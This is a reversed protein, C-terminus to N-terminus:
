ADRMEPPLDDPIIESTRTLYVARQVTNELHRVNGPWPYRLFLDTVATSFPVAPRGIDASFRARFQEALPLIDERREVLPPVVLEVVDLREYHARSLRGEAIEVALDRSTAFVFRVDFSIPTRDGIPTMARADIADLLKVLDSEPIDGFEDIFLTGHHAQQIQGPTLRRHPPPGSCDSRVLGFLESEMLQPPIADGHFVELREGSRPSAQHLCRAVVGKGTGSQGLILVNRSVQAVSRAQEILARMAPSRAVIDDFAEAPLHRAPRGVSGWRKERVRLSAAIVALLEDNGVDRPLGFNGGYTMQQLAEISTGRWGLVLIVNYPDHRKIWDLLSLEKGPFSRSDVIALDFPGGPIPKGLVEDTAYTTTQYGATRLAREVTEAQIADDLVLLVRDLPDVVSSPVGM